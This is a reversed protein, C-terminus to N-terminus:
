ADPGAPSPSDARVSASEHGSTVRENSSFAWSGSLRVIVSPDVVDATVPGRGLSGAATFLSDVSGRSKTILQAVKPPPHRHIRTGSVSIPKPAKNWPLRSAEFENGAAASIERGARSTRHSARCTEKRTM